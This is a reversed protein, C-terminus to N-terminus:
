VSCNRRDEWYLPREHESLYHSLWNALTVWYGPALESAIRSFSLVLEFANQQYDTRPFGYTYGTTERYQLTNLTQLILRAERNALFQGDEDTFMVRISFLWSAFASLFARDGEVFPNGQRDFARIWYVEHLLSDSVRAEGCLGNGRGYWSIDWTKAWEELQEITTFAELCLPFAEPLGKWGLFCTLVLKRFWKAQEDQVPQEELAIELRRQLSIQTSLCEGESVSAGLLNAVSMAKSSKKARKIDERQWFQRALMCLEGKQQTATPYNNTSEQRVPKPYM